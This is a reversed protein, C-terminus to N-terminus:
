GNVTIPVAYLKDVVELQTALKMTAEVNRMKRWVDNPATSLKTTSAKKEIHAHSNVKKKNGSVALRVISSFRTAMKPSFYRSFCFSKL